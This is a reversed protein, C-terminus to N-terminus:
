VTLTDEFMSKKLRIGVWTRRRDGWTEKGDTVGTAKVATCFTQYKQWPVKYFACFKKYGEYLEDKTINADSEYDKPETAFELFTKIPDTVLMHKLKRDKITKADMYPPKHELAIRRLPIMLVNFIGSLEEDTTLEHKLNPNANEGEVFQNPFSIIVERRYHADTKDNMQPMENTSFFHKAWLRTNYAPMYKPEVRIPESGTLEKLVSMDEISAQSMEMDININKGELEMKSFRNGLLHVLSTHAINDEGHLKTLVHMLVSKGNSGFGLLIFYLEFPNDRYFTYSMGEVTTRIQNPYNVESLFKGFKKPRAKPDFKIPIRKMSLYEWTHPSLTNTRIDYLGNMLNLIYIDKDFETRPVLHRRALKEIVNTVTNTLVGVYQKEVQAKVLSKAPEYLEKDENYYFLEDTDEYAAFHYRRELTEALGRVKTETDTEGKTPPTTTTPPFLLLSSPPPANIIQCIQSYAKTRQLYEERTATQVSKVLVEYLGQKGNIRPKEKYSNDVVELTKDLDEDPWGAENCLTEISLRTSQLTLGEKRMAGSLHFIIKDRNGPTYYPKLWGVLAKQEDDTLSRAGEPVLKTSSSPPEEGDPNIGDHPSLVRIFENLEKRTVLHPAKGNWEYLNGNPHRSPAAVIYHGKGQMLIQSHEQGDTWIQQQSIDDISEELKLVIHMGGSGTINVMTNQLAVRLNLSMEPIKQELWERAKPGDVDVAVIKSIPGTVIALNYNPNKKDFWAEIHGPITKNTKFYSWLYAPQKRDSPPENKLPFVNLGLEKVYHLAYDKATWNNNNNQSLTNVSEPSANNKKTSYLSESNPSIKKFDDTYSDVSMIVVLEQLKM